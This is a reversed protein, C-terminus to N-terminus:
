GDLMDQASVEAPSRLGFAEQEDYGDEAPMGSLGGGTGGYLDGGYLDDQILSALTSLLTVASPFLYM